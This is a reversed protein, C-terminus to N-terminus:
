NGSLGQAGHAHPSEMFLQGFLHLVLTSPQWLAM